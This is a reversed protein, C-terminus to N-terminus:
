SLGYTRQMSDNLELVMCPLTIAGHEAMRSLLYEISCWINESQCELMNVISKITEAEIM